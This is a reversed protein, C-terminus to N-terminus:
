KGEKIITNIIHEITGLISYTTVRHLVLENGNEKGIYVDYRPNGNVDRKIRGYAYVYGNIKGYELVVKKCMSM